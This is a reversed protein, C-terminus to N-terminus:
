LKKIFPQEQWSVFTVEQRVTVDTKRYVAQGGDKEVASKVEEMKDTRRAGMVVRAGAKALEKCIAAGIGVSAGIVVAM